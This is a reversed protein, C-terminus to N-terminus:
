KSKGVDESVKDKRIKKKIIFLGEMTAFLIFMAILGDILSKPVGTFREMALAGQKLIAIFGSLVPVLAINNKAILSALMGDLGIGTSFGDLFYGYIGLVEIGGALGGIAGSLMMGKVMTKKDPIGIYASFDNNLGVSRYEYGKRTKKFFFYVLIIVGIAIFLGTNARSPSMIRTLSASEQIQPTQAVGKGASMPNNVLYSTIYTAVYNLLITTCVDSVGYYAKLVGPIAAWLAGIIAALSLALPVHVMKPLGTIAYGVWAATIAGLYIEGEVGVNAMNVQQAVAFALAALMLPVFRELTGGFNFKGILAGKFLEIYSTVPNYGMVGIIVAGILLAVIISIVINIYTKKKM